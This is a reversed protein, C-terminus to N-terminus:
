FLNILEIINTSDHSLQNLSSLINEKFCNASFSDYNKLNNYVIKLEHLVTNVYSNLSRYEINEILIPENPINWLLVGSEVLIIISNKLEDLRMQFSLIENERNRIRKAYNINRKIKITSSYKINPFYHKVETDLRILDDDTYNERTMPDRTDGTKMIYKIISEYSYFFHKRFKTRYIFCPYGIKDLTICDTANKYFHSRYVNQIIKAALYKNYADFLERKKLKSCNKISVKKCLQKLIKINLYCFSDENLM